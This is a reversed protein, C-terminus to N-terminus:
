IKTIVAAMKFAVNAAMKYKVNGFAVSIWEMMNGPHCFM